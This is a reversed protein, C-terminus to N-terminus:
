DNVNVEWGMIINETSKNNDLRDMTHIKANTEAIDKIASTNLLGLDMVELGFKTKAIHKNYDKNQIYENQVQAIKYNTDAILQQTTLEKEVAKTLEPEIENIKTKIIEQKKQKIEQKIEALNEPKNKSWNEKGAVARLYGANKKYKKAIENLTLDTTQYDVKAKTKWDKGM